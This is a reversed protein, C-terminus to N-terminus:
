HLGNGAPSARLGSLEEFVLQVSVRVYEVVEIYAAEAEAETESGGYAARTIESFDGIIEAILAPELSQRQREPDGASGLGHMFGQCWHALCEARWELPEADDPLLMLFEMEGAELAAFSNEALRALMDGAAQKMGVAPEANAEAFIEAIWADVADRGSLCALGCYDGHIEAAGSAVDIQRLIEDVQAFNPELMKGMCQSALGIAASPGARSAPLFRGCCVTMPKQKNVTAARGDTM